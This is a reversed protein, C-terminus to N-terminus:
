RIKKRSSYHIKNLPCNNCFEQLKYRQMLPDHYDKQTSEAYKCYSHCIDEKLVILQEVISMREPNNRRM